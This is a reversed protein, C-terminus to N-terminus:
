ALTGVESKLMRGEGAGGGGGGGRHSEKASLQSGQVM